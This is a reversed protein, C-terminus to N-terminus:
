IDFQLWNETLGAIAARFQEFEKGPYCAIEKGEKFILYAPISRVRTEVGEVQDKLDQPHIDDVDM